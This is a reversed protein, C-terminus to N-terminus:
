VLEDSIPTYFIYLINDPKLLMNLFYSYHIIIMVM